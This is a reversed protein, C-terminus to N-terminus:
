HRERDASPETRVLNERREAGAAHALHVLCAIRPKLTIHGDFDKRWGERGVCVAHAPELLLRARRGRQIMRVDKGDVVDALM